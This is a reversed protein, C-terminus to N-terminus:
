FLEPSVTKDYCSFEFVKKFPNKLREFTPFGIRKEPFKLDSQKPKRFNQSNQSVSGHHNDMKYLLASTCWSFCCKHDNPILLKSKWNCFPKPIKGHSHTGKDHYRFMKITMKLMSDFIYGSEGQELEDNQNRM